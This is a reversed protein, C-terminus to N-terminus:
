EQLQHLQSTAQALRISLIQASFKHFAAALEPMEEEMRKLEAHALFHVTSPSDAVVSASATQGSYLSMEGFVTGPGARRIRLTRGNKYNLLVSVTGSAIFYIGAPETGHEILVHGADIEQHKTYDILRNGEGGESVRSSQLQDWLNDEAM